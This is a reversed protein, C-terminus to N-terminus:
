RSSSSYSSFIFFFFLTLLPPLLLLFISLSFEGPFHFGYGQILYGTTALMAVRSHKIEAARFWLFTEESGTNALFLPDFGVGFPNTSGAM